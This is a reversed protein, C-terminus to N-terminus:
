YLNKRFIQTVHQVFHSDQAVMRMCLDAAKGRDQKGAGM